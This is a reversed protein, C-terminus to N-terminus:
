QGIIQYIIPHWIEHCREGEMSCSQLNVCNRSSQCAPHPLGRSGKYKPWKIVCTQSLTCALFEHDYSILSHNDLYEYLFYYLKSLISHLSARGRLILRGESLRPKASPTLTLPPLRQRCCIFGLLQQVGASLKCVTKTLLWGGGRVVRLHTTNSLTFGRPRM